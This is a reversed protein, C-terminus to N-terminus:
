KWLYTSSTDQRKLESSSAKDNKLKRLLYCGLMMKEISFSALLLSDNKSMKTSLVEKDEGM